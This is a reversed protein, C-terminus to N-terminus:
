FFLNETIGFLILGCYLLGFVLFNARWFGKWARNFKIEGKAKWQIFVSVGLMIILLILVEALFNIRFTAAMITWVALIYFIASYSISFRFARVPNKWIRKATLYFLITSIFPFMIFIAVMYILLNTM